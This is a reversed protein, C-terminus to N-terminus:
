RLGRLCLRLRLISDMDERGSRLDPDGVADALFAVRNLKFEVHRVHRALLVQLADRDRRRGTRCGQGTRDQGTMYQHSAPFPMRMVPAGSRAQLPQWPPAPRFALEAM